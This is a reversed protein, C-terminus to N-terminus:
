GALFPLLDDLAAVVHEGNHTPSDIRAQARDHGRKDFMPVAKNTVNMQDLGLKALGDAKQVFHPPKGTVSV